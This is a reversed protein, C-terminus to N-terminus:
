AKEDKEISSGWYNLVIRNGEETLYANSTDHHILGARHAQEVIYVLQKLHAGCILKGAPDSCSIITQGIPFVVIAKDYFRETACPAVAVQGLSVISPM